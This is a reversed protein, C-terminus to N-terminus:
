SLSALTADEATVAVAVFVLGAAVVVAALGLTAVVVAVVEGVGIDTGVGAAAFVVVGVVTAAAFTDYDIHHYLWFLDCTKIIRPLM